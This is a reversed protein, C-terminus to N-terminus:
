GMCKEISKRKYVLLLENKFKLFILRNKKENKIGIKKMNKKYQNRKKTRKRRHCVKISIEQNKKSLIKIELIINLLNKNEEM